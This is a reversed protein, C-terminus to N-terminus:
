PPGPNGSPIRAAAFHPEALAPAGRVAHRLGILGVAALALPGAFAAEHAGTGDWLALLAWPAAAKAGISPLALAGAVVAYRERGFLEVVVAGRLVTLVGNAIGFLIAFLALGAFGPGFVIPLALAAVLLGTAGRALGLSSRREDWWLLALRGAVQMPGILLVVAAVAGAPIGSRQLVPVLSVTVGSFAAALAAGWLALGAFRPDSWPPSASRVPAVVPPASRAPVGFWHVGAGVAAQVLGLVVLAERWGAHGVLWQAVPIFVTGALGGLLTVVTAGRRHAAGFREAVVAFAPEYLVGAMAAGLVVWALFYGPPSTSLGISALAFGGLGSAATMLGRAGHRHMWGGALRACWGWALFGASIGAGLLGPSWGTDASMSVLVVPFAYYLVGWAVLQGFGLRWALAWPLASLRLLRGGTRPEERRM